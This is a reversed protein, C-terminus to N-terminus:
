GGWLKQSIQSFSLHFESRFLRNKPPNPNSPNPGQKTILWGLRGCKPSIEWFFTKKPPPAERVRLQDGKNNEFALQGKIRKDDTKGKCLSAMEIQTKKKKLCKFRWIQTLM